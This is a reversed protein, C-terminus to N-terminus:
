LLVLLPDEGKKL